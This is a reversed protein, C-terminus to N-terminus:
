DKQISYDSVYIQEQLETVNLEKTEFLLRQILYIFRAGPTQPIEPSSPFEKEINTRVEVRYGKRVNSEVRLRGPQKNIADIDSRITRDTVRLVGALERSTMWDKKEALLELLKEQRDNM